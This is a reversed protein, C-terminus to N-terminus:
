KVTLLFRAFVECFAQVKTCLGAQVKTCAPSPRSYSKPPTPRMTKSAVRRRTIVRLTPLLTPLYHAPEQTSIQICRHSPCALDVATKFGLLFFAM